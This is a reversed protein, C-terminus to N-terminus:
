IKRRPSKEEHVDRMDYMVDKLKYLGQLRSIKRKKIPLDPSSPRLIKIPTVDAPSSQNKQQEDSNNVMQQQQQDVQKPSVNQYDQQLPSFDTLIPPLILDRVDEM